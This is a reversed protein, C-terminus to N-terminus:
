GPKIATPREGLRNRQAAHTRYNGYQKLIKALSGSRNKRATPHFATGGLRAKERLQTLEKIQELQNSM